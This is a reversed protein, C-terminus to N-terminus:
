ENESSDTLGLRSKLLDGLTAAGGEDTFSKMESDGGLEDRKLSLGIRQNDRDFTTVLV